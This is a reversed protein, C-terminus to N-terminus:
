CRACLWVAASKQRCGEEVLEELAGEVNMWDVKGAERIVREERQREEQDKNGGGQSREGQAREQHQHSPLQQCPLPHQHWPSPQQQWPPPQQQWDPSSAAAEMAMASDHSVITPSAAVTATELSFHMRPCSFVPPM